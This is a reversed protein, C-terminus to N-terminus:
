SQMEKPANQRISLEMLDEGRVVEGDFDREVVTRWDVSDFTNGPVLHSLVLRRVGAAQAVAGVDSVATHSEVLHRHLDEWRANSEDEGYPRVLEPNIVEHVLTDAGRALDILELSPGTDGSIVVSGSPADFRYGLAPEVPAHRVRVARMVVDGLMREDGGDVEAVRILDRLDPRGEDLVRIGIDYANAELHAAVIRGLPAPGHVTLPRELGHAWAAMLVTGLAVNHDSHHHTIVIDTLASPAIGARLLQQPIGHGCDVLIVSDGAVIVQGPGCHTPSVRPGGKTGLLILRM